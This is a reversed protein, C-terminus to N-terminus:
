ANIAWKVLEDYGGIHNGNITIQPVTNLGSPLDSPAFEAITMGEALQFETYPIDMGDLFEKAKVCYPCTEKSYIFAEYEM